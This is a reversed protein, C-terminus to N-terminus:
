TQWFCSSTTAVPCVTCSLNGIPGNSCHKREGDSVINKATIFPTYNLESTEIISQITYRYMDTCISEDTSSITVNMAPALNTVPKIIIIPVISIQYM